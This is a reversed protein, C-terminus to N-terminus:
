LVWAYGIKAFFTRDTRTLEVDEDGYYGDSYGLFFVTQPNLKYSFLFQSGMGSQESPMGYSYLDPDFDYHRYQLIARVYCRRSFQYVARAYSLNGTYLKGGSVHMHTYDHSLRLQLHRGARYGIGIGTGFERGQQVNSIDIDNATRWWADIDVNGTPWFGANGNLAWTDFEEGLYSERGKWFNAGVYSQLKGNYNAWVGVERELPSGDSKGQYQYEGGLNLLTYWSESDARW